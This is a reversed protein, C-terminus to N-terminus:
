QELFHEQALTRHEELLKELLIPWIQDTAQPFTLWSAREEDSLSLAHDLFPSVDRWQDPTLTPM